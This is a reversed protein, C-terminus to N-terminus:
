FLLFVVVVVVVVVVVIFVDNGIPLLRKLCAVNLSAIRELKKKYQGRRKLNQLESGGGGGAEDDAASVAQAGGGRKSTSPMILTMTDIENRAVFNQEERKFFKKKSFRLLFLSPFPQFCICHFGAIACGSNVYTRWYFM